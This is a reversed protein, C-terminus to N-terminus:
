RGYTRALAAFAELGEDVGNTHATRVQAEVAEMMALNHLQYAALPPGPRRRPEPPPTGLAVEPGPAGAAGASGPAGAASASSVEPSAAPADPSADPAVAFPDPDEFALAIREMEAWESELVILHELGCAFHPCDPHVSSRLGAVLSRRCVHCRETSLFEGVARMLSQSM